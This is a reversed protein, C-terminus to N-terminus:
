EGEALVLDRLTAMGLLNRDHDVVIARSLGLRVLLRTAYRAQMDSPLTLVPKSMVEYVHMREPARNAAIVQAAIDSVVLLGFEDDSDRRNVVLSSITHRRMVAMAEAVTALGDVSHVDASMLDAVRTPVDGSM